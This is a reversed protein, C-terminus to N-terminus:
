LRENIWLFQLHELVDKEVHKYYGNWGGQYGCMECVWGGADVYNISSKWHVEECLEAITTIDAVDPKSM